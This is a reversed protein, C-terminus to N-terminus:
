ARGRGRGAGGPRRSPPDAHLQLKHLLGGVRRSHSAQVPAAADKGRRRTRIHPHPLPPHPSPPPLPQLGLTGSRGRVVVGIIIDAGRHGAVVWRSRRHARLDGQALLNRGTRPLPLPTPPPCCCCCAQCASRCPHPPQPRAGQALGGEGYRYICICGPCGPRVKAPEDHHDSHNSAPAAPQHVAVIAHQQSPETDRPPSPMPGPAGQEKGSRGAEVNGNSTAGGAQHKQQCHDGNGLVILPLADDLAASPSSPSVSSDAPGVAAADSPELSQRFVGINGGGGTSYPTDSSGMPTGAAPPPTSATPASASASSEM